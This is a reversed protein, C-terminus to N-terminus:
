REFRLDVLRPRSLRGPRVDMDLDDVRRDGVAWRGAAAASLQGRVVVIDERDEPGLLGRERLMSARSSMVPGLFGPRRVIVEAELGGTRLQRCTEQDGCISSHVLLIVGGPSLHSPAERCIRDLLARGNRGADLSVKIGRRPLEDSEAPIYPPNSVILDFTKDKLPAFLDGRVVRVDTRHGRANIWATIAARITLDVAVVSAAGARAACIAIAGTGACLDAVHAGHLSESRMAEALMWTDTVPRHVGPLRFLKVAGEKGASAAGLRHVGKPRLRQVTREQLRQKIV